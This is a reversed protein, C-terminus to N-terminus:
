PMRSVQKFFGSPLDYVYLRVDRSFDARSGKDVRTFLATGDASFFYEVADQPYPIQALSSAPNDLAYLAVNGANVIAFEKGTPSFQPNTGKVPTVSSGDALKIIENETALYAGNQSVAKVQSTFAYKQADSDLDWVLANEVVLWNRGPIPYYFGSPFTRKLAFTQGDYVSVGNASHLMIWRGDDTFDVRDIGTREFDTLSRLDKVNDATISASEPLPTQFFAPYILSPQTATATSAPTPM